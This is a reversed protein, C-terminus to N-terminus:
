AHREGLPQRPPSKPDLGGGNPAEPRRERESRLALEIEDYIDRIQAAQVNEELVNESTEWNIRAASDILADDTLAREVAATVQEPRYPDVLLASVGDRVYEAACASTTQIPLAGAAMGELMATSAGDSISAAVVARASGFLRLIEEHPVGGAMASTKLGHDRELVKAYQRIDDQASYVVINFQSVLDRIPLLADLVMMARGAWGTYGRIAITRRGSPPDQRMARMRVLDVGAGCLVPGCNIGTFGIRRALEFDRRCEAHFFSARRLLVRLLATHHEFGDFLSLDSGYCSAFFPTTPPLADLWEYGAHQLENAQILDPQLRTAALKFWASRWKKPKWAELAVQAYKSPVGPVPNLLQIQGRSRAAAEVLKPHYPEVGWSPLVYFTHKSGIVAAMWRAFHISNPIGAILVNM